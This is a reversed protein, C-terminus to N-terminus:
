RSANRGLINKLTTLGAHFVEPLPLSGLAFDGKKLKEFEEARRDLFKWTEQQGESKDQILCMEASM